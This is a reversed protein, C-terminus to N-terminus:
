CRSIWGNERGGVRAEEVVGRGGVGVLGWRPSPRPVRARRRSRLWWWGFNTTRFGCSFGCFEAGVRLLRSFASIALFFPFDWVPLPRWSWGFPRSFVCRSGLSFLPIENHIPQYVSVAAKLLIGGIQFAFESWSFFKTIKTNAIFLFAYKKITWQFASYRAKVTNM